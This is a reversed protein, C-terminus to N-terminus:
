IRLITGFNKKFRRDKPQTFDIVLANHADGDTAFEFIKEFNEVSIINSVEEWLDQCIVKQSAFRYIVFLSSNTRISRPIAKLNQTMILFNIALHRCKLVMNTLASKGVSRFASSGVLDDLIIFNSVGFPFRPKKPEQYDDMELQQLELPDLKQLDKESKMKLFKKWVKMKIKYDETEKKENKIDDAIELLLHDSYNEHIDSKDLSQLASFVKNASITPSLVITRIDIKKGKEFLGYKEYLSILQTAAYTKGAGRSGIFLAVFFMRTLNPDGCVPYKDKKFKLPINQLHKISETSIETM